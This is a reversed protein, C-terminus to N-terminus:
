LLSWGHAGDGPSGYYKARETLFCRGIMAGSFAAIAAGGAANTVIMGVTGAAIAPGIVPM